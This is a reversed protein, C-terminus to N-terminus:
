FKDGLAELEEQKPKFKFWLLIQVWKLEGCKSLEVV